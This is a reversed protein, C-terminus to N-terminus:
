EGGFQPLSCEEQTMKRTMVIAATEVSQFRVERKEFDYHVYCMESCPESRNRVNKLLRKLDSDMGKLEAKYSSAMSDLEYKLEERKKDLEAAKEAIALVESETLDRDYDVRKTQKLGDEQM